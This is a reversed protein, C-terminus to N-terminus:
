EYRLVEVPRTRAAIIAPVVAGLAAATVAFLVIPMAAAWDMENPIKSFMYTSSKWIKLGFLIRIWGEIANINKTIIAAILIGLIGGGIGVCGGFGLFIIGASFDTAGCSKIIAIDKLRTVVIMYFICFVLMIVSLSVVGFVLMLIDMQKRFEAVYQAQMQKSTAINTQEIMFGSWQLHEKAFRSWTERIGTLSAEAPIGSALKIQIQDAVKGQEGPQLVKQLEEIPLYIFTKDLYYAGTFVVDSVTFKIVKRRVKETGDGAAGTTVVVDQGVMKEVAAFDYEDTKEDPEAVVAIGLFSGVGEKMQPLNFSAAGTTKKQRLLSSKFGTVAERSRPEIGNIVIARVNGDGLNLLGPVSLTVTAAEIAPNKKLQKILEDYRTFKVPPTIVVDGLMEMATREFANIFGNFLNSVVILLATSVAVAAISLLVIKKKRLYRLWLFIKLM